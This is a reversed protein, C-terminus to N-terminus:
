VAHKEKREQQKEAYALAADRVWEGSEWM